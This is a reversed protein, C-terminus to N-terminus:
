NVNNPKRKFWSFVILLLSFFTASYSILDGFRVFFTKTTNLSVEGNIIAFEWYPQPQDINGYEDIFCSIGTNASRIVQKRTEIARLRAYSLHQRHGPTDGWWGDNTIISIVEAGNRIYETMYDGYASEYCIAPALNIKYFPDKFVTRDKQRALSGSTGGLEIAFREFYQFFWPFPLCEVGPVLKSKHYFSCKNSTDIYIATNYSDYYDNSNNYKRATPTKTEGPEFEHITGAGTLISAKPFHVRMLTVLNKLQPSETYTNELIDECIFTEPLVVLQTEKNLKSSSLQQHLQNLQVNFELVFKDNYPDINPQIVTVNIKRSPEINRIGLIIFSIAIPIFVVAMPKIWAKIDKTGNLIIKAILINAVLAWATGGSPGTIEFWQIFNVTNAFSNGIALWPWTLDWLTNGWEWALWLPIFLWFNLKNHFKQELNYWISVVWSMLLANCIIAMAAGGFSANYMWWTSFLNWVFFAVYSIGWIKLGKRRGNSNHISNIAVFLPVLGM